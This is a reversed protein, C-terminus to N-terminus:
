VDVIDKCVTNAKHLLLTPSQISTESDIASCVHRSICPKYHTGM